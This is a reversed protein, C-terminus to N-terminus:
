SLRPEPTRLNQPEATRHQRAWDIAEAVHPDAGSPHEALADLAAAREEPELSAAGYALSRRIRRLGARRMASGKLNRRWDDDTRRCLDILAPAALGDRPQWAPDDSVAARRNWPCVDQCIDCGYTREGIASRWREDVAGRSEITLYSLCRTADVEYPEAIAGTPCADICRTCVGCHDIAPPDPDLEANCLIEALFIWSGLAPSIVCTNKGIWGLGAREAWLREQVPGNDVCSFAEFGRGAEDALDRVLQRLRDRLVAHYDDGWAYCSILARGSRESTTRFQREDDPESSRRGTNYVVALSIVSRVTPLVAAPDLREDLSEALYEMDGAHGSAIWEAIRTFRADTQARAIGCLDFRRERARDKVLASSLM